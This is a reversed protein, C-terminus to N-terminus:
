GLVRLCGAWQIFLLSGLILFAGGGVQVAAFADTATWAIQMYFTTNAVVLLTTAAFYCWMGYVPLNNFSCPSSYNFMKRMGLVSLCNGIHFCCIGALNSWDLGWTDSWLATAPQLCFLVSAIWKCSAAVLALWDRPGPLSATWQILLSFGYLWLVCSLLFTGNIFSKSPPAAVHLMAFGATLLIAAVLFVYSLNLMALRSPIGASSASAPAVIEPVDDLSVMRKEGMVQILPEDDTVFSSNM